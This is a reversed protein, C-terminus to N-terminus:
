KGRGACVRCVASTWQEGGPGVGGSVCLGAGSCDRPIWPSRGVRNTLFRYYQPSGASNCMMNEWAYCFARQSVVGSSLASTLLVDSPPLVCTMDQTCGYFHHQPSPYPMLLYLLCEVFLRELYTFSAWCM